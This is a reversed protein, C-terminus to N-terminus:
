FCNTEIILGDNNTAGGKTTKTVSKSSEATARKIDAHNPPEGRSTPTKKPHTSEPKRKKQKPPHPSGMM